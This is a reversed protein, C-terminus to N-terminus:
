LKNTTALPIKATNSSSTIVNVPLADIISFILIEGLFQQFPAM